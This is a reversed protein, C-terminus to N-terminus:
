IGHIHTLICYKDKEKQNVESQIVSGLEVWMVVSSGTENRKIALYYELIYIYWVQMIWEDTSPCKPQKWTRAITVTSCHVIPYMYRKSNHNEGSIYGPTPM